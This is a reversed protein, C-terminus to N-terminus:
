VAGASSALSWWMRRWQRVLTMWSVHVDGFVDASGDV